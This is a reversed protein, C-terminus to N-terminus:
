NPPPKMARRVAGVGAFWAELSTRHGKEGVEKPQFCLAEGPATVAEMLVYHFEGPELEDVSLALREARGIKM